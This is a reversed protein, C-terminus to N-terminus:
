AFPQALGSDRYRALGVHLEDSVGDDRLGSQRAAAPLLDAAPQHPLPHHGPPRLSGGRSPLGRVGQAQDGRLRERRRSGVRHRSSPRLAGILERYFLKRQVGLTGSDHYNENGPETEALQFHLFIGRKDAHTFVQEWQLLKSTDYHTKDQEGVTPFTDKGDGGINMPLFYIVNAGADALTNLAGIIGKGKGSGWDADGSRWDSVHGAFDHGANPTNDFGSYGLFNEPINAGGKLWVGGGGRFM